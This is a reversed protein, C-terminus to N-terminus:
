FRKGEMTGFAPKTPYEGRRPSFQFASFFAGGRESLPRLAKQQHTVINRFVSPRDLRCMRFYKRFICFYGRAIKQLINYVEGMLSFLLSAAKTFGIFASTTTMAQPGAPSAAATVAASDPSETMARSLDLRVPPVAFAPIPGRPKFVDKCRSSSQVTVTSLANRINMSYVCQRTSAFRTLFYKSFDPSVISHSLPM